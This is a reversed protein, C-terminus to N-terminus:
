RVEETLQEFKEKAQNLAIQRAATNQALESEDSILKSHEIEVYIM